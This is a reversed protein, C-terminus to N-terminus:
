ARPVYLVALGPVPARALRGDSTLLPVDLALALAVYHADAVRVAHRLAWIRGTLQETPVREVPADTWAAVAADAQSGHLVGARELRAVASLVETDILAPALPDTETLHALAGAQHPSPLLADVAVSADVVARRM